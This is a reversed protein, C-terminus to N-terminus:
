GRDCLEIPKNCCRCVYNSSDSFAKQSQCIDHGPKKMIEIVEQIYPEDTNIVIYTNIPAKNDNRRGFEIQSAAKKVGLKAFDSCYKEIDENKFVTFRIEM